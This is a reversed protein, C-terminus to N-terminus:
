GAADKVVASWAPMYLTRAPECLLSGRAGLTIIVKKVGSQLLINGAKKADNIDNLTVGSLFSAETETQTINDLASFLHTVL